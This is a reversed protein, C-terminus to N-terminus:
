YADGVEASVRRERLSKWSPAMNAPRGFALANDPIDHRVLSAAGIVAGAGIKVGPLVTTGAGIFAGEGVTVGGCLIAGPATHVHDGIICDHDISARTNIIVNNGIKCGPQIIAGAMVQVGMGFEGSLRTGVRPTVAKRHFVNAFGFGRATWKEFMAIRPDMAGIGNVLFIYQPGYKKSELQLGGLHEDHDLKRIVNPRYRDALAEQLVRAHGGNGLIIIVIM